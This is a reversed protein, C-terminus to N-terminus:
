AAWLHRRAEFTARSEARSARVIADVIDRPRAKTSWHRHEVISHKAPAWVGRAKATGVLEDDCYEHRYGAHMVTGPGDVCAGPDDIYDRAVLTHTSHQGAIVAHNVLDNTGIVKAGTNGAVDLAATLWGRHFHLDDAATFLWPECTVEAGLNIKSAYTPTHRWDAVWEVGAAAAAEISHEDDNDVVVVLRWKGVPTGKDIDDLLQAIRHPRHLVPAVIAVTAGAGQVAGM